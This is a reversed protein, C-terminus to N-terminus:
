KTYIHTGANLQAWALNGPVLAVTQLQGARHTSPVSGQDEVTNAYARLAEDEGEERGERSGEKETEGRGGLKKEVCSRM